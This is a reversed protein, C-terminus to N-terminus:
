AAIVHVEGVLLVEVGQWALFLVELALYAAFEWLAHQGGEHFQVQLNAGLYEEDFVIGVVTPDVASQADDTGDVVIAFSDGHDGLAAVLVIHLAGDPAVHAVGVIVLLFLYFLFFETHESLKGEAQCPCDGDVLALTEGEAACHDVKRAAYEGASLGVHGQAAAGGEVTQLEALRDGVAVDEYFGLYGEECALEVVALGDVVGQTQCLGVYLIGIGVAGELAAVEFSEELAEELGDM